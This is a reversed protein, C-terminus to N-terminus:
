VIEEGKLYMPLGAVTFIVTSCTQALEQNLRGACERFSRGSPSVPVVGLGVENSVMIVPTSIKQLLSCLRHTHHELEDPLHCMLNSVWLTLCDIIIVRVDRHHQELVSVIDLPEEVTKWEPGRELRHRKIREAMEEDGAQATAIFLAAAGSRRGESNCRSFFKRGIDLALSSKGSKAGGIILIHM